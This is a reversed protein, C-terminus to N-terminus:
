YDTKLLTQQPSEFERWRIVWNQIEDRFVVIDDDGDDDYM